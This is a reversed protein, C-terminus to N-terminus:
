PPEPTRHDLDAQMTARAGSVFRLRPEPTAPRKQDPATTAPRRPRHLGIMSARM